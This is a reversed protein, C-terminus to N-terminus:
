SFSLPYEILEDAPKPGITLYQGFRGHMRYFSKIASIQERITILVKCPRFVEEARDAVLALDVASPHIFSESSILVCNRTTEARIKRVLDRLETAGRFRLRDQHLISAIDLRLRDDVYRFSPIFKGLYEIEPHAPFVHTQFTTTATKPYCAHIVLPALLTM